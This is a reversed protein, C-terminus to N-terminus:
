LLTEANTGYFVDERGSILRCFDEVRDWEDHIDFEYTHGWIYFLADEAPELALFTEALSFLADFDAMRVTPNFLFLDTQRAFGRTEVTTRAYRVATRTRLIEAVRADANVGGGPYAMGTVPYGALASLNKRDEEVQRVIEEPDEVGTLTPHTLTHVAVEHGRYLSAVEEPPIKNHDVRVSDRILSGPKGLLESNLNFTGKLGFRNLLGVFRRDQTVGDDFSFTVAKKKGNEFM